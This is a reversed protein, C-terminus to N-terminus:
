APDGAAARFGEVGRVALNITVLVVCLVAAALGDERDGLTGVLLIALTVIWLRALMGGAIGGLASRRNGRGVASAAHREAWLQIARQVIWVVAVVAYGLMPLGAILFVPLALALVILDLQRFLLM